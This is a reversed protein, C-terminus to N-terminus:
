LFGGPGSFVVVTPSLQWPRLLSRRSSFVAVTPSFRSLALFGGRGSCLSAAQAAGVPLRWPRFSGSRDSDRHLLPALRSSKRRGGAKRRGRAEGGGFGRARCDRRRRR